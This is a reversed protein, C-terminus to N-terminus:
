FLFKGDFYVIECKDKVHGIKSNFLENDMIEQCFSAFKFAQENMEQKTIGAFPLDNAMQHLAVAPTAYERSYCM